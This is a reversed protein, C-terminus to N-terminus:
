RGRRRLVLRTVLLVAMVSLSVIAAGMLVPGTQARPGGADVVSVSYATVDINGLHNPDALRYVGTVRLTTGKATYSGYSTILGAAGQDMAVMISDGATSQLDVWLDGDRLQVPEGVVSGIFTVLEGDLSQDVNALRGITVHTADAPDVEGPLYGREAGSEGTGERTGDGLAAMRPDYGGDAGDSAAPTADADAHSGDSAAPTADADAHSGDSAAPTAGAIDSGAPAAADAPGSAEQASAISSGPAGAAALHGAPLVPSACAFLALLAALAGAAARRTLRRAPSTRPTAAGGEELRDVM